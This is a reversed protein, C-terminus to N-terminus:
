RGTYYVQVALGGFQIQDGNRVVYRQGPVLKRGNLRTGNSSQLDEIMWQEGIHMLRAHLRSIGNERADFPSLDVHVLNNSTEDYRGIIHHEEESDLPITYQRGEHQIVVLLKSQESLATTVFESAVLFETSGIETDVVITKSETEDLLPTNCIACVFVGLDNEHACNPCVRM